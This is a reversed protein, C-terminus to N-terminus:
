WDELSRAADAKIQCPLERGCRCVRRLLRWSFESRHRRSIAAWFAERYAEFAPM